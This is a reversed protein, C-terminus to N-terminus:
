PLLQNKIEGTNSELIYNYLFSKDNIIGVFNVKGDMNLDSPSYVNTLINGATSNLTTNYIYGKDNKIGVFNVLSNMDANGGWLVYKGDSAVGHANNGGFLFSSATFDVLSTTSQKETLMPTFAAPDTSNGLHNRHRVAVTYSGDDVNNFTVPSKGDVDVVDGDRQVLASRTQIINNGASTNRLELFVWDVIDDSQLSQANFVTADAAEAIPDNTRVFATNYPAQSYPDTLPIVGAARLNDSMLHTATNYPGQLLVKAKLLNFKDIATINTSTNTILFSITNATTNITGSSSWDTGDFIYAKLNGESGFVDATEAYRAQASLTGNIGASTITWNSKLYDSTSPPKNTSAINRVQMGVNAGNNNGTTTLFVPRYLTGAGVPIESSNLNVSIKKIVQGSNNTEIFKNDGMGSAQAMDSLTFSHGDTIFKGNSFKLSGTLTLDSQLWVNNVNDIELNSITKGNMNISQSDTGQLLYKGTSPLGKASTIDNTVTVKAGTQVVFSVSDIILQAESENTGVTFLCIIIFLTRSM